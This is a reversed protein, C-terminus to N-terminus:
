LARDDRQEREEDQQEESQGSAAAADNRDRLLPLGIRNWTEDVDAQLSEGGFMAREARAKAFHEFVLLQGVVREVVDVIRLLQEHEPDIRRAFRRDEVLQPAAG